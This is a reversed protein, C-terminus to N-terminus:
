DLKSLQSAYIILFAVSAVLWVASTGMAIYSPDFPLDQNTPISEIYDMQIKGSLIALVAIGAEAPAYLFFGIRKMRLMLIAAAIKILGLCFGLVPMWFPYKIESAGLGGAIILITDQIIGIGTGVLTMICLVTIITPRIRKEQFNENANKMIQVYKLLLKPFDLRIRM